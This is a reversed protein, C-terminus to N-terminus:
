ELEQTVDNILVAVALVAVAANLGAGSLWLWHLMEDLPDPAVPDQGCVCPCGATGAVRLACDGLTWEACPKVVALQFTASEYVLGESGEPCEPAPVSLRPLADCYCSCDNPNDGTRDMCDQRTWTTCARGTGDVAAAACAGVVDIPSVVTSPAGGEFFQLQTEDSSLAATLSGSQRSYLTDGVALWHEYATPMPTPRRLISVSCGSQILQIRVPWRTASFDNCPEAAAGAALLVAAIWRMARTGYMGPRM